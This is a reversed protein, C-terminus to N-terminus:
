PQELWFTYGGCSVTTDPADELAEATAKADDSDAVRNDTLCFYVARRVDILRMPMSWAYIGEPTDRILKYKKSSRRPM